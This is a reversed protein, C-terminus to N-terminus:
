ALGLARVEAVYYGALEDGRTALARIHEKEARMGMAAAAVGGKGMRGDSSANCRYQAREAWGKQM